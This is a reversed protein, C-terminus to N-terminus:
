KTIAKIIQTMTNHQAEMDRLLTLQARTRQLNHLPHKIKYYNDGDIYDTLFRTAMIYTLLKPAFPLYEIETANLTDGAESLFGEAYARFIETDMSVLSLDESDEEARNAATRIADGFDYHVYGPMVTDLDIILLARDTQRDFLINNFKTDNHTIRLPILGKTVLRLIIKMEEERRLIEDTEYSVSEARGAPDTALVQHLNELRWAINHFDPITEHLPPGPLDALMAQFRGTIRGGEFAKHHTDVREYSTHDRIFIFMRWYRGEEDTIFSKGSERDPVLTLCERKVDGGDRASIKDRLHTTVREMNEQLRPIDTFVNSNLRQLIYDDCEKEATLIRFTDHIHGPGFSNGELFTGETRFRGFIKRLDPEM